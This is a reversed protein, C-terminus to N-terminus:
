KKIKNIFESKSWKKYDKLLNPYADLVMKARRSGLGHGLKNSASMLDKMKVDSM